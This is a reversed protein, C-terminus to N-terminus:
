HFVKLGGYGSGSGWGRRLKGGTTRLPGGEYTDREGEHGEDFHGKRGEYHILLEMTRM